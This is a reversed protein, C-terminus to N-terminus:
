PETKKPKHPNNPSQPRLVVSVKGSTECEDMFQTLATTILTDESLGSQEALKKLRDNLRPDHLPCIPATHVRYAHEPNPREEIKMLAGEEDRERPAHLKEWMGLIRLFMDSPDTKKETELQHIYSLSVGLEIALETQTLNFRKRVELLRLSIKEVESM